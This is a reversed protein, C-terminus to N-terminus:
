DDDDKAAPLALYNSAPLPTRNSSPSSLYNSVYSRGSSTSNPTVVEYWEADIVTSDNTWKKGQSTSKSSIGEGEVTFKTSSNNNNEKRANQKEAKEQKKAEKKAEKEAADKVSDEIKSSTKKASKELVQAGAETFVKTLFEKGAKTAAPAVVDDLVANIFKRAKSENKPTLSAIDRQLELYEKQKKMEAIKADLETKPSDYGLKKSLDNYADENRLRNVRDQLEKDNMESTTKKKPVQVVTDDDDGTKKNKLAENAKRMQDLKNLKADTRKANNLSRKEALLRAQENAVYKKGRENLSGDKNTYRKKGAPTLSGDKNQYRRIGWRMGKTGHHTLEDSNYNEYEM